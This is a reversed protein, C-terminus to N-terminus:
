SRWFPRGAEAEVDARSLALYQLMRDDLKQLALRQRLRQQCRYLSDM